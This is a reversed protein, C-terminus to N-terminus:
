RIRRGKSGSQEVLQETIFTGARYAATPGDAVQMVADCRERVEQSHASGIRSQDRRSVKRRETERIWRGCVYATHQRAAAYRQNRSRKLNRNCVALVEQEIGRITEPRRIRVETTRIHVLKAEADLALYELIGRKFYPILAVNGRIGPSRLVNVFDVNEFITEQLFEKISM